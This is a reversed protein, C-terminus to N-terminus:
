VSNPEVESKFSHKNKWGELDGAEQLLLFLKQVLM